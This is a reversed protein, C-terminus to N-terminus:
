KGGAPRSPEGSVSTPSYLLLGLCVLVLAAGALTASTLREGLVGVAVLTGVVPQLFVTLGVGGAPIRRLAYVWVIYGFVTCGLSLYALAIWGTFSVAPWGSVVVDWAAIPIWVPLAIALSAAAVALPAYRESLPKSGVSYAAELLLGLMFVADGVLTAASLSPWGTEQFVILYAGAAGVALSALRTASLRERLAIAALLITFAPELAMLLGANAATSHQVGWVTFVKALVAQALGLALLAPWIARPLRGRRMHWLVVPLLVLGALIMRWASLQLPTLERLALKVVVWSAGWLANSVGLLGWLLFRSACPAPITM